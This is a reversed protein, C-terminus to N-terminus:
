ADLTALPRAAPKVHLAWGCTCGIHSGVYDGNPVETPNSFRQKHLAVHPAWPEKPTRFMGHRWEWDIDDRGVIQVVPRLVGHGTATGNNGTWQGGQRPVPRGNVDRVLEGDATVAAGSAASMADLPLGPPIDTSGRGKTFRNVVFGTIAAALVLTGLDPDVDLDDRHLGFPVVAAVAAATQRRFEDPNVCEAISKAVLARLDLHARVDPSSANWVEDAPLDRLAAREPTGAPHARIIEKVADRSAQDACTQAAAYLAAYLTTDIQNLADFVSQTGPQAAATIAQPPQPLSQQAAGFDTPTVITSAPEASAPEPEAEPDAMPDEPVTNGTAVQWFDFETMGDPLSLVEPVNLREALESRTIGGYRYLEMLQGTVDPKATLYSTDFGVRIHNIPIDPLYGHRQRVYSIWPRLFVRTIDSCVPRLKPALGVKRQAEELLWENWHNAAGPGSTLLQAPFNVARAFAELAREEVQLAGSDIERGLDIVKAEPGIYAFPVAAAASDDDNIALKALEFYDDLVKDGPPLEIPEGNVDVMQEALPRMGSSGDGEPFAIMGNMVLRSEAARTQNRTASRLRRLDGLARRIPSYPLHPSYPDSVLSRWAARQLSPEATSVTRVIGYVDTFRIGGQTAVVNPVTEVTWGVADDSSHILWAEGMAERHRVHLAVLESQDRVPSQYQSLISNFVADDSKVWSGDQQRVEVTLPCLSALMSVLDLYFGCVGPGNLDFDRIKAQWGTSSGVSQSLRNKTASAPIIAATRALRPEGSRRSRM